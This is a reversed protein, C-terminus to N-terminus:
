YNVVIFKSNILGPFVTASSEAPVPVPQVSEKVVGEAPNRTSTNMNASYGLKAIVLLPVVALLAAAELLFKVQKM